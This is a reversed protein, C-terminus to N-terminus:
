SYKRGQPLLKHISCSDQAEQNKHNKRRWSSTVLNLLFWEPSKFPFYSNRLHIVLVSVLCPWRSRVGSERVWGTWQSCLEREPDVWVNMLIWHTSGCSLTTQALIMAKAFFLIEVQHPFISLTPAGYYCPWILGKSFAVLLLNTPSSLLAMQLM